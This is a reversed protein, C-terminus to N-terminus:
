KEKGDIKVLCVNRKENEIHQAECVRLFFGVVDKSMVHIKDGREFKAKEESM